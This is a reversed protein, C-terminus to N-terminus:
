KSSIKDIREAIYSLKAEIAALREADKKQDEHYQEFPKTSGSRWDELREVRFSLGNWSTVAMITITVIAGIISIGWKGLRALFKEELALISKEISTSEETSM